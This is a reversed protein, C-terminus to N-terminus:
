YLGVSYVDISKSELSFWYERPVLAYRVRVKPRFTRHFRVSEYTRGYTVRNERSKKFRNKHFTM